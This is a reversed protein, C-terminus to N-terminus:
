IYNWGNVKHMKEAELATSLNDNEEQLRSM